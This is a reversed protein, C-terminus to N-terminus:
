IPLTIVFLFSNHTRGSPFFLETRIVEEVRKRGTGKRLASLVGGGRGGGWVCLRLCMCLNLLADGQHGFPSCQKREWTHAKTIRYPQLMCVKQSFLVSLCMVSSVSCSEDHLRKKMPNHTLKFSIKSM